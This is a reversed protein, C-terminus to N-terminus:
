THYDANITVYERSFDCTVATFTGEGLGLDCLITVAKGALHQEVNKVDFKAPGGKHFVKVGGISIMLRAPDVKAASKGLACAVRGWNPDGGHVACKFLPSDAVSKAALKADRDDRAGRVIVDVVKTAGEGDAVVARALTDCTQRLAAM